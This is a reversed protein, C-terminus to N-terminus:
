DVGSEIADGMIPSGCVTCFMQDATVGAGCKDCTDVVEQGEEVIESYRQGQQLQFGCKSCFQDNPGTMAGCKDCPM